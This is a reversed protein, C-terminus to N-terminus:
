AILQPVQAHLYNWQNVGGIAYAAFAAMASCRARVRTALLLVPLPALWTLWWIPQLGSGFWWGLASLTVALLGTALWKRDIGSAM